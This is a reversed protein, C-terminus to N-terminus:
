GTFQAQATVPRAAGPQAPQAAGPVGNGGPPGPPPGNPPPGNPPPGNPPPTTGPCVHSLNFETQPGSVQASADLLTDPGPTFVYAHKPTPDSVFDTITGANQFQASISVFDTDNGPLVFHWGWDGTGFPNAPCTGEEFGPNTSGKHEEKLNATTTPGGVAATGAFFALLVASLLSLPLLRRALRRRDTSGFM